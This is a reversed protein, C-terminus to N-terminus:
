GNRKSNHVQIIARHLCQIQVDNPVGKNTKLYEQHVLEASIKYVQEADKYNFYYGFYKFARNCISSWRGSYGPDNVGPLISSFLDM